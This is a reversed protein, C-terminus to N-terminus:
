QLADQTLRIGVYGKYHVGKEIWEDAQVYPAAAQLEKSFRRCSMTGMGMRSSWGRYAEYLSEPGRNLAVRATPERVARDKLFLGIVDQREKYAQTMRLVAPPPDLGREYWERAGEVLWALIGPAEAALKTSLEDDQVEQAMGAEVEAPRGYLVLYELFFLRRWLGRDQGVIKPEYNTFLQLKHTPNFDFYGEYLNRATLRDGGTLNKLLGEDFEEDRNTEQLTVMRRGLLKTVEPSANGGSKAVLLSRPAPCAYGPGLVHQVAEILKSKGNGGQGVHFVLAHERTEGTICYGFWRKVFSIVAEDGRFIERLFLQFRPATVAPDYRVPACATIFDGPRHPGSVGTRLDITGSRCNFLNTEANLKDAKIDLFRRLMRTCAALREHNSCLMAWKFFAKAEDERGAAEFAAAEKEIIKPLTAILKAVPAEDKVWHTQAWVYFAEGIAIIDKGYIREIRRCNELDSAKTTGPPIATSSQNEVRAPPAEAAVQEVEAAAPLGGAADLDTFGCENFRESRIEPQEEALQVMRRHSARDAVPVDEGDFGDLAGFLHLRVLDFANHQGRAPDTDHHSHLKTDDDYVVAGDARSGATYTWRNESSGPKYPLGFREIAASITFARCFEGVIGAKELPSEASGSEHCSDGEARHPWESRDKWDRYEGLVKDVDLYPSETDEWHEFPVGKQACPRFMFQAPVHSERAALEIDLGAIYKRSVAQFEDYGAGRSLPVWVRLRPSQASHSWTTHACFATGKLFGLIKGVAGADIHDFDYSLFHRAKFNEGHRYEPSFEAGCVWGAAAKDTTVPVDKLIQKVFAAFDGRWTRTIIAKDAKGLSAALKM